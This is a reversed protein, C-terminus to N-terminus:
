YVVSGIFIAAYLIVAGTYTIVIPKEKHVLGYMLLVLSFASYYGWSISSVGSANKGSWIELVQPLTAFLNVVGMIVVLRDFLAIWKSPKAKRKRKHIHHHVQHM